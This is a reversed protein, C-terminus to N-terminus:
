TSITSVAIERTRIPRESTQQHDDVLVQGDGDLRVGLSKALESRPKTGLASYVVDFDRSEGADFDFAAVGSRGIRVRSIATEVMEVQVAALRRLTDRPLPTQPDAHIFTVTDSYTRLFEAERASHDDVGLVGVQKGIVEYGDCIPCIRVVGRAVGDELGPIPPLRDAVGTALIVTRARFPGLTTKARFGTASATLRQVRGTVIQAGYREAQRRSRALLTKGPVGDPFGPHNHSRAIWAARSTGDEIVLVRRRFRALYIAATLGAPGGGVVLCDLLEAM